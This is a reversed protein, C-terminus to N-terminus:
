SKMIRKLFGSEERRHDELPKLFEVIILDDGIKKICEWPIIITKRKFLSLFSSPQEVTVSLIEAKELCIDCDVIYGLRSCDMCSIVEKCSLEEFTNTRM